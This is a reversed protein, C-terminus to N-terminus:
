CFITCNKTRLGKVINDYSGKGAHDVRFQDNVSKPGDLSVGIAYGLKYLLKCWEEDLLTANTQIGLVPTTVEGLIEQTKCKFYQFFDKGALLPEGGHLIIEFRELNNQVCHDKIRHLLSDVVDLGMVKPQNRYTHDGLNYMYCYSCNLNCRSAVKVVVSTVPM